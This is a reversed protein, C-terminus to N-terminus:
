FLDKLAEVFQGHVKAIEEDTPQLTKSVEIPKGIVVYLPHRYPIPSGFVGWFCIPTFKIARSPKLYLNWDPKWWKYVSWLLFSSGSTDWTGHSHACIRKEIFPIF